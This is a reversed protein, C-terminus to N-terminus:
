IAHRKVWERIADKENALEGSIIANEIHILLEELWPGGRKNLWNMLDRGNVQLETRSKIPLLEHAALTKSISQSNTHRIVTYLRETKEVIQKSARYLTQKTWEHELRYSLAQMIKKTQKIQKVPLKWKRLLPEVESISTQCCYLLLVWLEEITLNEWTLQAMKRLSEAKKDLTPLYHHLKTDVLIRLAEQCGPGQLLKEFEATIREISIKKLLYGHTRLAAMTQKEITFQLQSVFRVARMMRLADESFREEAKGVTVIKREKIADQGHFPDIIEGASSLAIANMTFDRRKLDEILSRVFLVGDPRRFDKYETETRFTTIEYPVSNYIVLITGHEIGIDVTKSFIQKIEEPTASSAIDVDNIHRNTLYDRVSGGVFYAEHGAKELKELIPIAQLFPQIM